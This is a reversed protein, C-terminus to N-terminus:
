GIEKRFIRIVLADMGGKCFAGLGVGFDALRGLGDGVEVAQGGVLGCRGVEDGQGPELGGAGAALFAVDLVHEDAVLAQQFLDIVEGVVELGLRVVIDAPAHHFGVM